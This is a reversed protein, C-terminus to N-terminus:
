PEVLVFRARVSLWSRGRVSMCPSRRWKRTASERLTRRSGRIRRQNRERADQAEVLRFFRCFRLIGKASRFSRNRSGPGLGNLDNPTRFLGNRAITQKGHSSGRKTECSDCAGDRGCSVELWGRRWNQFVTVPARRDTLFFDITKVPAGNRSRRVKAAPPFRGFLGNM